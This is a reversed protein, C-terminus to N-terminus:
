LFVSSTGAAPNLNATIDINDLAENLDQVDGLASITDPDLEAVYISPVYSFIATNRSGSIISSSSYTFKRRVLSASLKYECNPRYFAYSQQLFIVIFLKIVIHIHLYM